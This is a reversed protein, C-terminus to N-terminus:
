SGPKSLIAVEILCIPFNVVGDAENDKYLKLVIDSGYPMTNTFKFHPITFVAQKFTGSNTNTVQETGSCNSYLINWKATGSDLYTVTLRISDTTNGSSLTDNLDFYMEYKSHYYKFIRANRGYISNADGGIRWQGKSTKQPEKQTVWLTYNPNCDICIDNHEFPGFEHYQIDLISELSDLRAPNMRNLATGTHRNQKVYIDDGSIDILHIQQLYIKYSDYVNGYIATPYEVTDRFDIKDALACFGRTVQSKAVYFQNSYKNFIQVITDRHAITDWWPSMFDARNVRADLIEFMEETRQWPYPTFKMYADIEGLYVMGIRNPWNMRWSQGDSPIEHTPTGKKMYSRPLSDWIYALYNAADEPQYTVRMFSTDKAYYHYTSDWQRKKFTSWTDDDFIGFSSVDALGKYPGGDGTSGNSVFVSKLRAKQPASLTFLTDAIAKHIKNFYQKYLPDYYDPWPGNSSGGHTYFTDVGLVRLWNVPNNIPADPGVWLQVELNLSSDTCIKIVNKLLTLSYDTSTTQLDDWKLIVRVGKYGANKYLHAQATTLGVTWGYVGTQASAYFLTLATIISLLIKKM